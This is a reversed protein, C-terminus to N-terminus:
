TANHTGHLYEHIIGDSFTIARLEIDIGEWIM